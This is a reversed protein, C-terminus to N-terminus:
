AGFGTTGGATGTIADHAKAWWFRVIAGVRRNENGVHNDFTRHQTWDIGHYNLASADQTTGPQWAMSCDVTRIEGDGCRRHDRFALQKGAVDFAKRHEVAQLSGISTSAELPPQPRASTGVSVM